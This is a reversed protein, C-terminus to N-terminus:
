HALAYGKVTGKGKVKVDCVTVTGNTALKRLLASAKSTSIGLATAVESAIVLEHCALYDNLAVFLPADTEARKAKETEARKSNKADLAVLM